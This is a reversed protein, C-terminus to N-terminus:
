VGIRLYRGKKLLRTNGMASIVCVLVCSAVRYHTLENINKIFLKSLITLIILLAQLFCDCDVKLRNRVIMCYSYTNIQNLKMLVINRFRKFPLSISNRCATMSIKPHVNCSPRGALDARRDLRSSSSMVCAHKHHPCTLSATMCVDLNPNL